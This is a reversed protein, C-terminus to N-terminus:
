GGGEDEEEAEAEAETEAEMTLVCWPHKGASIDEINRVMEAWAKRFSAIVADDNLHVVIKTPGRRDAIQAKSQTVCHWMIAFAYGCVITSLNGEGVVAKETGPLSTVLLDDNVAAKSLVDRCMTRVLTKAITDEDHLDNQNAM